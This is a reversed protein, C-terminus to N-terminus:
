KSAYKVKQIKEMDGQKDHGQIVKTHVYAM